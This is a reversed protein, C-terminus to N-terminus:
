LLKLVPSLLCVSLGLQSSSGVVLPLSIAAASCTPDDVRNGLLDEVVANLDLKIAANSVVPLSALTYQLNGVVGLPAVSNVTSLLSNVTNLVTDILPCLVGPFLNGLTNKLLTPRLVNLIRIN